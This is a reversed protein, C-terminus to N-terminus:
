ICYTGLQKETTYHKPLIQAESTKINRDNNKKDLYLM